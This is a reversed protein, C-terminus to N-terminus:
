GTLQQQGSAEGSCNAGPFSSQLRHRRFCPPASRLATCRFDSLSTGRLHSKQFSKFLKKFCKFHLKKSYKLKIMKM